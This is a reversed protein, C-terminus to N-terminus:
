LIDWDNIPSKIECGDCDISIYNLDTQTSNHKKKSFVNFLDRYKRSKIYDNASEVYYVLMANFKELCPICGNSFRTKPQFHYIPCDVFTM